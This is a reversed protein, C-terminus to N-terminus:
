SPREYRWRFYHMGVNAQEVMWGVPNSPTYTLCRREFCQILVDQVIGRLKVQAWYPETTPLGTAFFWPEFLAGENFGEGDWILGQSQLYDWFISAVTHGTTPDPSGVSIGYSALRNASGVNGQSDITQVVITGQPLPSADLHNSFSSYRPGSTDDADGAIPIEAPNGQVFLHDGLQMEGTILERALLGNTVYWGDAGAGDPYTVEMRSKDYYSVIRSSTPSEAYPEITTGNSAPGWLWTRNVSGSDVPLDQRAWTDYFEPAPTAGDVVHLQVDVIRSGVSITASYSGPPMGTPDARAKLMAPTTGSTASLVLWSESASAVWAVPQGTASSVNLDKVGPAVGGQVAAFQVAGPAVFVDGVPPPTSGSVVSMAVHVISQGITLTGAYNGATLGSPEVIVDVVAPTVGAYSSMTLWSASSTASWDAAGGGARNISIQQAPLTSQGQTAVFSLSSPTVELLPQQIAPLVELSVAVQRSGPEFTVVTAYNGPALSSSDASATVTGPSIGSTPSISLWSADETAIWNISSGSSNVSISAPAPNPQGATATFALQEPLVNLESQSGPENVAVTVNLTRPGPLFTLPAAYLGAALNSTKFSLAIEGSTQGSKPNITLWSAGSTATWPTIFDESNILVTVPAPDPAGKAVSISVRDPLLVLPSTGAKDWDAVWANPELSLLSKLATGDDPAATVDSDVDSAYIEGAPSWGYSLLPKKTQLALSNSGGSDSVVLAGPQSYVLRNSTPSWEAPGETEPSQTINIATSGASQLYVDPQGDLGSATFTFRVGDPAWRGNQEDVMTSNTLATLQGDLSLRKLDYQGDIFHWILLENGGPHWDELGMHTADVPIMDLSAGNASGIFIRGVNGSTIAYIAFRSGEPSILARRVDLAQGFTVNALGSEDPYIRKLTNPPVGGPSPEILLLMGTAPVDIALAHRAPDVQGLAPAVGVLLLLAGFVIASLRRHPKANFPQAAM